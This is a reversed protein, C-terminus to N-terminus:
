MPAVSCSSTSRAHACASRAPRRPQQQADAVRRRPAAEREALPDVADHHRQAARPKAGSAPRGSPRTARSARLLEAERDLRASSRAGGNALTSSTARRAGLPARM